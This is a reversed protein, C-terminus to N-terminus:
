ESLREDVSLFISQKNSNRQENKYCEVTNLGHPM